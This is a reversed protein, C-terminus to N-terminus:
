WFRKRDAFKKWNQGDVVDDTNKGPVVVTGGSTPLRM